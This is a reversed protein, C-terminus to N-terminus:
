RNIYVTGTRTDGYVSAGYDWPRVCVTHRCIHGWTYQHWLGLAMAPKGATSRALATDPACYANLSHKSDVSPLVFIRRGQLGSDSQEGFAARSSGPFLLAFYALPVFGVPCAHPDWYFMKSRTMERELVIQLFFFFLSLSLSNRFSGVLGATM